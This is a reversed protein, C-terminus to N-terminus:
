ESFHSVLMCYKMTKIFSHNYMYIEENPEYYATNIQEGFKEAEERLNEKQDINNGDMSIYIGLSESGKDVKLRKLDQEEQYKDLLHYSGEM